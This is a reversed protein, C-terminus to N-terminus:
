GYTTDQTVAMTGQVPTVRRNDALTVEIDYNYTGVAWELRDIQDVEFVGNVLDTVTIGSGISLDVEVQNKKGGRRFQSRITAGTLDTPPDLSLTLGDFTDGKLQPELIKTAPIAM